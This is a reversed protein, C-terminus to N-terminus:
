LQDGYILLKSVFNCTHVLTCVGYRNLLEMYNEVRGLSYFCRLTNKTKYRILVYELTM